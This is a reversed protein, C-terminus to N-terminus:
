KKANTEQDASTAAFYGIMMEEWTQDGWRVEKTPDPNALNGESNDFWAECFVRTGKPMLKPEVFEYSNQWNFDYHPVDLLIEQEGGPYFATYRFAKGRVHMHPMLSLVLTDRSLTTNAEVKYNPDGPPIRFRQNGAKETAVTKKVTDPDAFVIGICSRDLQPTGNPTYHMQFVFRSGAPVKKAMGERLVMPRAGPATAALWGGVLDGGGIKAGPPVIGVIIHHVVSRNGPRCEAAKVWKDETFGPDVLFYQYRVEGKAPVDYPKDSMYVIQDPESIQWGVTFQRPPPLDIKDGEPAGADIWRAILQKDEASLRADNIFHGYKPNAHWPPMRQQDIVERIMEAWGVVEDYSTLAFPGIEGSRHCKVCNDQLIRAIHKSYTVGTDSKPALQRGILCGVPEAHSVGIPDGALLQNLADVLYQREVKSRQIGYTFQDDIRGHFVVNRNSDLLFVEPTRQAAFQDAVNNGPDKLVPFDLEHIRAFHALETLSDQQNSDIAAFAVGADAYKEALSKLRMAYQAAIPCEVGLFAIVTAKKGQLEDLSWRKGRFDQLTFPQITRGVANPGAAPEAAKVSSGAFILVILTLVVPQFRSPM